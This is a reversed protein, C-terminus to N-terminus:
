NKNHSYRSRCGRGITIGMCISISKYPLIGPLSPTCWAPWRVECSTTRKYFDLSWNIFFLTEILGCDEWMMRAIRFTKVSNEVRITTDTGEAVGRQAAYNNCQQNVEKLIFTRVPLNILISYNKTFIIWTSRIRFINSLYWSKV